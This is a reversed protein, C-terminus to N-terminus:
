TRTCWIEGINKAAQPTSPSAESVDANAEGGAAVNAEKEAEGAEADSGVLEEEQAEEAADQDEESEFNPQVDAGIDIAGRIGVTKPNAALFSDMKQFYSWTTNVSGTSTKKEKEKNYRKKLSDLKQKCQKPTFQQGGDAEQLKNV